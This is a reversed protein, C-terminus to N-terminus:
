THTCADYKNISLSLQIFMYYIFFSHHVRKRISIIWIVIIMMIVTIISLSMFNIFHFCFQQMSKKEREHRQDDIDIANFEAHKEYFIYIKFLLYSHYIAILAAHGIIIIPWVYYNISLNHPWYDNDSTIRTNDISLQVNVYPHQMCIWYEFYHICRKKDLKKM